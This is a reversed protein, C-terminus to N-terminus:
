APSGHELYADVTAAALPDVFPIALVLLLAAAVGVALVTFAVTYGAESPVGSEGTHAMLVAARINQVRNLLDRERWFDNYDGSARDRGRAFEGDRYLRNCHDRNLPDGSNVFDYLFDIDEGLWGGPHRM